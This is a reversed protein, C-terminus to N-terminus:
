LKSELTRGKRLDHSPTYLDFDVVLLSNTDGALVM